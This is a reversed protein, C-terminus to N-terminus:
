GQFDRRDGAVCARLAAELASACADWDYDARVRVAADRGLRRLEGVDQAVLWEAAEDAARAVAVVHGGYTEIQDRAGALEMCVPLTACAMAELVILPYSDISSLHVLVDAGRLHDLLEEEPVRGLVFVHDGLGHRAILGALRDYTERDAGGTIRAQFPVGAERLRACVEIVLFSGKGESLRGSHILQLAAPRAAPDAPPVGLIEAPLFNRILSRPPRDHLAIEGEQTRSILALRDALSLAYESATRLARNAQSRWNAGLHPTVMVRMGLAKAVVLYALDPLNVYQLWVCDPKHRRYRRLADLGAMFRRLGRPALYATNTPLRTIRWDPSRRLLALRSRECFAEVGGPHDSSGGLILLHMAGGAM